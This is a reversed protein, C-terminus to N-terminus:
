SQISKGEDLHLRREARFDGIADILCNCTDQLSTATREPFPDENHIFLRYNNKAAILVDVWTGSYFRLQSSRIDSNFTRQQRQKPVNVETNELQDEDEDDADENNSHDVPERRSAKSTNNTHRSV